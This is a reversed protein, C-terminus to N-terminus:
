FCGGAKLGEIEERYIASYNSLTVCFNVLKELEENKLSFSIDLKQSIEIMYPKSNEDPLRSIEKSYTFYYADSFIGSYDYRWTFDKKILESLEKTYKLDTSKNLKLRQPEDASDISLFPLDVDM